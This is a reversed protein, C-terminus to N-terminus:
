NYSLVGQSLFEVLQYYKVANRANYPLFQGHALLIIDCLAFFPDVDACFVDIDSWYFVM